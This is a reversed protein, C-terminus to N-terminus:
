RRVKHPNITPSTTVSYRENSGENAASRNAVATSRLMAMFSTVRPLCEGCLDYVERGVEPMNFSVTSRTNVSLETGCISCKSMDPRGQRLKLVADTCDQCLREHTTGNPGDLRLYTHEAAVSGCWSCSYM